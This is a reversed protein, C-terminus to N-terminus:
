GYYLPLPPNKLNDIIPLTNNTFGGRRFDRDISRVRDWDNMPKISALKNAPLNERVVAEKWLQPYFFHQIFIAFALKDMSDNMTMLTLVKKMSSSCDNSEETSHQSHQNIMEFADFFLLIDRKANWKGWTAFLGGAALLMVATAFWGTIKLRRSITFQGMVASNTAMLM